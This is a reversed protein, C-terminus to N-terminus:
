RVSSYKQCVPCYHTSRQGLVIRRIQKGCSRCPHGEMGYVRHELQFWGEKGEADVYDSVSSGGKAIAETLVEGIAAHLRDGRKRGIRSALTRPHIRARFLSEDAYINGVGRVFSQNLLLNKIATRHSKLRRFFEEATIELPEPGLRSVRKPLEPDWQITGFMRSDDYVLTGPDLTFLARTHRTRDADFVLQGTMGLHITLFGSDLGIVIFKGFREVTRVKRGALAQAIGPTAHRLVLPSFFEANLIRRGPLRARLARVVTEVEPLEPVPNRCTWTFATRPRACPWPGCKSKRIWIAKERAAILNGRMGRASSRTAMCHVRHWRDAAIPASAASPM